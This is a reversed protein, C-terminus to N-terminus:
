STSKTKMKHNTSSTKITQYDSPQKGATAAAVRSKPRAWDRYGTEICSAIPRFRVSYRVSYYTRCSKICQHVLNQLVAVALCCTTRCAFNNNSNLVAANGDLKLQFQRQVDYEQLGCRKMQMRYSDHKAVIEGMWGDFPKLLLSPPQSEQTDFIDLVYLLRFHIKITFKSFVCQMM